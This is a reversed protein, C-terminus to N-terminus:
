VEIVVPLIMPRKQTKTYVFQGLKNRIDNKIVDSDIQSIKNKPEVISKIKSRMKAILERNEKLYVFGRSIIDPSQILKGTKKNVTAVVVIMGDEALIQRDRLVINQLDSIGLGDVYVLDTIAKKNLVKIGSKDIEIVSGNDPVLSTKDTYGLKKKALMWAEKLMYHNAYVPIFYTPNIDKIIQEIDGATAHGGSHVDMIGTHIVNDCQRYINDKLRQVTRENGPIVSSSFIVTDNKQFKIFRHNGSVIRNLVARDEGQAGTCIVVIKKDPLQEIKSIDIMNKFDFDIYGLQKAININTKMSYGDVAVKKNYRQAMELVHKVREVNSSFTGIIIRGPADKIIKEINKYM